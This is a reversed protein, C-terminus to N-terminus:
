RAPSLTPVDRTLHAISDARDLDYDTWTRQDVIRKLLDFWFPAGLSIALGLKPRFASVVVGVIGTIALAARDVQLEHLLRLDVDRKTM